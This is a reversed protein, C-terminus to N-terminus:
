ANAARRAEGRKQVILYGQKRHVVDEADDIEHGPLVFFWSDRKRVEDYQDSTLPVISTCEDSGCECVFDMTGGGYRDEARAIKDIRDNVARYMSENHGIRALTRDPFSTRIVPSSCVPCVEAADDELYLTRGCSTCFATTAM